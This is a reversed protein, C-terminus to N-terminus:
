DVLRAFGFMVSVLRIKGVRVYLYRETRKDVGFEEQTV